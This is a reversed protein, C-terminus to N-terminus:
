APIHCNNQWEEQNLYQEMGKHNLTQTKKLDGGINLAGGERVFDCIHLKFGEFLGTQSLIRHVFYGVRLKM